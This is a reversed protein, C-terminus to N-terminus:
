LVGEAKLREVARRQVNEGLARGEAMSEQLITPVLDQFKKGTPSEYFDIVDQLEEESFHRAYTQATAEVFEPIAADFEQKTVDVVTAKKEDSLDPKDRLALNMIPPVIANFMQEIMFKGQSVEVLRRAKEIPEASAISGSGAVLLLMCLAIIQKPM